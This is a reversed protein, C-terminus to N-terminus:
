EGLSNSRYVIISGDPDIGLSRGGAIHWQTVNNVDIENATSLHWGDKPPNGAKMDPSIWQAIEDSPVQAVLRIDWDSPGPLRGGSNNQYYINYELKDYKRRFKVYSELFQIREALTSKSASTEKVSEPGTDTQCGALTLVVFLLTPLGLQVVSM